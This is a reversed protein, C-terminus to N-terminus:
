ESGRCLGMAWFISFTYLFISLNLWFWLCTKFALPSISMALTLSNESSSAYPFCVNSVLTSSWLTTLPDPGFILPDLIWIQEFGCGWGLVLCPLLRLFKPLIRVAFYYCSLCTSWSLLEFKSSFSGSLKRFWFLFPTLLKTKYNSSGLNSFALALQGLLAAARPEDERCRALLYVVAM